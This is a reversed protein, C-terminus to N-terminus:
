PTVRFSVNSKLTGKSTTVEVTGTTAGTPVTAKIESGSVITFGPASVGNFTVSSAGTLGTGLIYVTAGVKGSTPRTEVFAALSVAVSFVTGDNSTGGIVTTGYFTGNTHQTLGSFPVTGDTNDFIHLTTLTGAPTISFATGVNNTAGCATSGYFNGDTGLVLGAYPYAGDSNAFSHLTTVKGAATMSFVTGFGIGTLACDPAGENLLLESTTGYFTGNAAQV